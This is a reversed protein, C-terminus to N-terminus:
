SQLDSKQLIHYVTDKIYEAASVPAVKAPLALSWITKINNQKAYEFDVGGPQSALDIILVEKKLLDLRKSNLVQTPINNIIIDFKPLNEDLDDLPIPQYGFAQIYALDSMKRAECFVNAGIGQLMKSLVKGIRGFGMVLINSGSLTKPFEEMAIQIAGEATAIANLVAYEERQLIDEYKMSQSKWDNANLKGSIILNEKAQKCFEDIRIKNDSFPTNMHINDKSLPIATIITRAKSTLEELSHCFKIQPIQNLTEAKELAYTYVEFGDQCLMKVLEVIRTDGGVISIKKEM